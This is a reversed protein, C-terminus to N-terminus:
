VPEPRYLREYVNSGVGQILACQSESCVTDALSFGAIFGLSSTFYLSKTYPASSVIEATSKELSVDM